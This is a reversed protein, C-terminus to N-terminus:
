QEHPSRHVSMMKGAHLRRQMMRKKALTNLKLVPSFMRSVITPADGVDDCCDVPAAAETMREQTSQDDGTAGPIDAATEYTTDEDAGNGTSIEHMTAEAVDTVAGAMSELGSQVDVGVDSGPQHRTDQQVPPAACRKLRAELEHACSKWFELM